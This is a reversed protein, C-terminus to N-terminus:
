AFPLYLYLSTEFGMPVFNFYQFHIYLCLNWLFTEFGMPVFNFDTDLFSYEFLSTPKLDWLSLTLILTTKQCKLVHRTEFGMPVFNFYREKYLITVVLVTEFGMPVFNLDVYADRYRITDSNWIGYPCLEFAFTRSSILTAYM